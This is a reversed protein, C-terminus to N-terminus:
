DKFGICLPLYRGVIKLLTKRDVGSFVFIREVLFGFAADLPDLKLNNISTDSCCLLGPM